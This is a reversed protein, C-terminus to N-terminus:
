GSQTFHKEVKLIAAIIDQAEEEGYRENLHLNFSRNKTSLANTSIFDDSLYPKAWDWGSIVCGYHRNLEIGEAALADAFDVKSCGLKESDVFIPFFFPSFGDHFSYPRCADSESEM